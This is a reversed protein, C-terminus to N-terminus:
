RRSQKFLDVHPKLLDFLTNADARMENLGLVADRLELNSDILPSEGARLFRDLHYAMRVYDLTIRQFLQQVHTMDEPSSMM